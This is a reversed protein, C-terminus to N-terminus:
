NWFDDEFAQQEKKQRELEELERKATLNKGMAM